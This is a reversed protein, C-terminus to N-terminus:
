QWSEVEHQINRKLMQRTSTKVDCDNCTPDIGKVRYKGHKGRNPREGWTRKRYYWRPYNKRAM